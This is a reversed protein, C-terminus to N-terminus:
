FYYFCWIQTTRDNKDKPNTNSMVNQKNEQKSQSPWKHNKERKCDGSTTNSPCIHIQSASHFEHQFSFEKNQRKKGERNSGLNGMSWRVLCPIFKEHCKLHHSFPSVFLNSFLFWFPLIKESKIM